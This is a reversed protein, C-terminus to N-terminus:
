ERAIAAAAITEGPVYSPFTFPLQVHLQTTRLGIPGMTLTVSLTYVQSFQVVPTSRM